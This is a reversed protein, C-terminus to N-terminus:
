VHAPLSSLPSQLTSPAGIHRGSYLYSVNPNPTSQKSTNPDSGSVLLFYCLLFPLSPALMGPPHEDGAFAHM